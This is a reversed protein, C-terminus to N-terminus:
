HVCLIGCFRLFDFSKPVFRYALPGYPCVKYMESKALAVGSLPTAKEM